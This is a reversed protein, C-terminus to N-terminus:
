FRNHRQRIHIHVNELTSSRYCIEEPNTNKFKIELWQQIKDNSRFDPVRLTNQTNNTKILEAAIGREKSARKISTLKVLVLVQQLKSPAATKIAGITQAGNVIQMKKIRLKKTKEDFDFNECLASIGNNYYYFHGPENDLTHMLGKNVEGKKGLFRRINWNFLSEKAKLAIEQLTTGPIAFTINEPDGDPHFYHHERLNFIVEDPYKEEVSAVSEYEDKLLGLDWVEFKVNDTANDKNYKEVLADTKDTARGTSIFVFHILFGQKLWYPFESALEQIRLNKAKRNDLYTRDKFLKFESFFTIVEDEPIPDQGAVKPNKCQLFYIEETEKSEFIIDFRSDDGRLIATAPDNEAAPYRESFLNFCWDEFAMGRQKNNSYDWKKALCLKALADQLEKKFEQIKM